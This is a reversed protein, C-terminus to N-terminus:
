QKVTGKRAMLREIESVEKPAMASLVERGDQTVVVVDEIRVGLEKERIYIGPEVTLVVGPALPRSGGVDHVAMGVYHSTGHRWYRGYGAEDIIKRAAANVDSFSAGPKVAAIAAKQAALCTQYVRRQEDSFRGNAPFTRTIDSAYYRYDPAYDMVIIDGDQIQRTKASYHLVCSNPGSGVIAFYSGGLAGERKFVYEAVAGLEYEYLGPRVTKMAEILGRAGIESARRILEIEEASKVLRMEDMIPSLDKVTLKLSELYHAFAQERSLRQDWASASQRAHYQSALDRSTQALEEPALPTFVTAGEPALQRLREPFESVPFVQAMGTQQAAEAGPSLRHGEVMEVQLSHAPLFLLAEQGKGDLVLIASPTDAVGTFYYFENSQRFETYSRPSEAGQIVALASGIRKMLEARRRAYLSKEGERSASADPLSALLALILIVFLRARLKRM